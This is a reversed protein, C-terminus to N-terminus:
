LVFYKCAPVAGEGWEIKFENVEVKGQSLVSLPKSRLGLVTVQVFGLMTGGRCSVAAKISDFGGWVNVWGGLKGVIAWIWEATVLHSMDMNWLTIMHLLNWTRCLGSFFALIDRCMCLASFVNLWRGRLLM